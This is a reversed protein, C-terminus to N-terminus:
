LVDRIQQAVRDLEARSPKHFYASSFRLGFGDGKYRPFIHLHVHFIEQMAAEGDALFFNVGECKVGSERLVGALRQAVQFLHAGTDADLDALFAAHLNPIVLIHGPTVPQIDMFATCQEDQYVLSAPLSGSLIDCFVCNSM